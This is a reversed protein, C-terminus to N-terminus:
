LPKKPDKILPWGPSLSFERIIIAALERQEYKEAFTNMAGILFCEFLCRECFDLNTTNFCMTFDPGQTPPEEWATNRGRFSVTRCLLPKTGPKSLDFNIIPLRQYTSPDIDRGCRDCTTTKM